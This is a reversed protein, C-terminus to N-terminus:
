RPRILPRPSGAPQWPSPSFPPNHSRGAARGGGARGVRQPATRNPEAPNTGMGAGCRGCRRAPPVGFRARGDRLAHHPATRPPAAAAHTRSRLQAPDRRARHRHRFSLRAPVPGHPVATARRGRGSATGAFGGRRQSEGGSRQLCFRGARPPPARSGGPLATGGETGSCGLRPASGRIASGCGGSGVDARRHLASM